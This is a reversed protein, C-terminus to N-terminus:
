PLLARSILGDVLTRAWDRIDTDGVTVAEARCSLAALFDLPAELAFSLQILGVGFKYIQATLQVNQFVRDKFTFEPAPLGSVEKVIEKADKGVFDLELGLDFPILLSVRTKM